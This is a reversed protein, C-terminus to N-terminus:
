RRTFMYEPPGGPITDAQLYSGRGQPRPYPFVDITTTAAM